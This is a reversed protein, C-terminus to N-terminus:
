RPQPPVPFLCHKLPLASFLLFGRTTTATSSSSLLFTPSSCQQQRSRTLGKKTCDRGYSYARSMLCHTKRRSREAKENCYAPDPFSSSRSVSGALCRHMALLLFHDGSGKGKEDTAKTVYDSRDFAFLSTSVYCQM